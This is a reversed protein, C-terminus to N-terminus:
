LEKCCCSTLMTAKMACYYENGATNIAYLYEDTSIVYVTNNPGMAPTSAIWGGTLYRWKASGLQFFSSMLTLLFFHLLGKGNTANIAYIYGASGVYVTGDAGLAPSSLSSGIVCRWKLYGQLLVTYYKSETNLIVNGNTNLAYLNGDDSGVYITDTSGVTPSSRVRDGTLYRWKLSGLLLISTRYILNYQELSCHIRLLGSLM